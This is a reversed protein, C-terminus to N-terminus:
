TGRAPQRGVLVDDCGRSGPPSESWTFAMIRWELPLPVARLRQEIFDATEGPVGAPSRWGFPEILVLGTAHCEMVRALSEPTSIVPRRVLNLVGFEPLWEGGAQLHNRQLVLDMRNLFYLPKLHSYSILVAAQAALSDLTPTAAAWDSKGRYPKPSNVQEPAPSMMRLFAPLAGNGLFLFAVIVCGAFGVATRRVARTRGWTPLAALLAEARRILAPIIEASAMGALAFFMPMAYFIYRPHKWAALSHAAICAVFITACFLAARRNRSAAILVIVPFLSWLTAYDGLLQWHYFRVNFRQAEAWPDAYRALALAEHLLGTGVVVAGFGFLLVATVLPARVSTWAPTGGRLFRVGQDLALWLSVAALGVLTSAQFHWALAFSVVALAAVSVGTWRRLQAGSSLQFVAVSGLWFFLAHLSYFRSIQTIFIGFPFTCLLLAAIWAALRGAQSHVWIYVAAVLAGAGLIAPIRAATISDGFLRFFGAVLYTFLYSRTYQAGGDITLTGDALLSRAALVHHLEDVDPGFTVDVLRVAVALLFLLVADLWPFRSGEAGGSRASSARIAAAAAGPDGTLTPQPMSM